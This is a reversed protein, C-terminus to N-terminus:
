FLQVPVRHIARQDALTRGISLLFLQEVPEGVVLVWGLTALITVLGIPIVLNANFIDGIFITAQPLKSKASPSNEVQEILRGVFDSRTILETGSEFRLAGYITEFRQFYSEVRASREANSEERREGGIAPASRRALLGLRGLNGIFENLISPRRTALFLFYTVAPLLATVPIIILQAAITFYQTSGFAILGMIAATITLIAAIAFVKRATEESARRLWEDLWQALAAFLVLLAFAAVILLWHEHWLNRVTSSFIAGIGLGLAGYLTLGTATLTIISPGGSSWRRPKLAAVAKRADSVWQEAGAVGDFEELLRAYSDQASEALRRAEDVKQDPVAVKESEGTPTGKETMPGPAISSKTKKESQPEAAPSEDISTSVDPAPTTADIAARTSDSV